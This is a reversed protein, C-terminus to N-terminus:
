LGQVKNYFPVDHLKALEQGHAIADEYLEFDAAAPVEGRYEVYVTFFDANHYECEEIYRQRNRMDPSYWYMCARVEVGLIEDTKM